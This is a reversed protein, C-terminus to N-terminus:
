RTLIARGRSADITVVFGDLVDRGLLGDVDATGVDHAVVALPGIQTGAIDLRPVVVEVADAVGTAGVIRIGSAGEMAVAARLLASPAIVTRDAGTDVLLKLLVGNLRAETVIPTGREFVITGEPSSAPDEPDRPASDLVRVADRYEAPIRDRDTVYYEVGARDTWQYIQGAAPPPGLALAVVITAVGVGRVQRAPILLSRVAPGM